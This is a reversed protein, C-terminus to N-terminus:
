DNIGDNEDEILRPKKGFSGFFHQGTKKRLTDITDDDDAFELVLRRGYLHTSVALSKM